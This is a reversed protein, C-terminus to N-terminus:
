GAASTQTDGTEGDCVPCTERDDYAWCSNHQECRGHDDWHVRNTCSPCIYPCPQGEVHDDNCPSCFWTSVPKWNGIRCYADGATYGTKLFIATAFIFELPDIGGALAEAMHGGGGWCISGDSGNSVHPHVHGHQSKNECGRVPHVTVNFSGRDRWALKVNMPGLLQGQIEFVDLTLTLTNNRHKLTGHQTILELNAELTSKYKAESMTDYYAMNEYVQGLSGVLENLQTQLREIGRMKTTVEGSFANKKSAVRAYLSAALDRVVDPDRYERFYPAIKDLLLQLGQEPADGTRSTGATYRAACPDFHLDMGTRFKTAIYNGEDCELSGLTDDEFGVPHPPAQGPRMVVYNGNFSANYERTHDETEEPSWLRLWPAGESPDSFIPRGIEEEMATVWDRLLNSHWPAGCESLPPEDAHNLRVVFTNGGGYLRMKDLRRYVGEPFHRRRFYTSEFIKDENTWQNFAHEESAGATQFGHRSVNDQAVWVTRANQHNGNTPQWASFKVWTQFAFADPDTIPDECSSEDPAGAEEEDYGRGMADAGYVPEGDPTWASSFVNDPWRAHRYLSHSIELTADPNGPLVSGDSGVRNIFGEEHEFYSQGQGDRRAFHFSGEEVNEFGHDNWYWWEQTAHVVNSAHVIRTSVDSAHVLDINRVHDLGLRAPAVLDRQRGIQEGIITGPVQANEGEYRYSDILRYLGRPWAGQRFYAVSYNGPESGSERHALESVQENGDHTLHLISEAVNDEAFDCEGSSCFVWLPLSNSGREIADLTRSLSSPRKWETNEISFARPGRLHPVCFNEFATHPNRPWIDTDPVESNDYEFDVKYYYLEAVEDLLEPPPDDPGAPGPARTVEFADDQLSRFVNSPWEPRRFYNHWQAVDIAEQFCWIDNTTRESVSNELTFSLGLTGDPVEMIDTDVYVWLPPGNGNDVYTFFDAPNKPQNTFVANAAGKM